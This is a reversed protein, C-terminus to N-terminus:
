STWFARCGFVVFMLCFGWVFCVTRWSWKNAEPLNIWAVEPRLLLFKVPVVQNIRFSNYAEPSVIAQGVVYGNNGSIYSFKAYYIPFIRHFLRTSPLSNSEFDKSTYLEYIKATAYGVNDHSKDRCLSYLILGFLGVGVM